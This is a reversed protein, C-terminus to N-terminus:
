FTYGLTISWNQSDNDTGFDLSTDLDLVWNEAFGVAIYFSILGYSQSGSAVLNNRNDNRDPQNLRPPERRDTDSSQTASDFVENWSAYTGYSLEYNENLTKFGTLNLSISGITANGPTRSHIVPRDPEDPTDTQRQEWDSYHLGFSSTFQWNETSLWYYSFGLSHSDSDSTLLSNPGPGGDLTIQKDDYATYQYYASWDEQYYSAGVGWLDADYDLRIPADPRRSDQLQGVDLNISWHESLDYSLMLSAGEPSLQYSNEAVGVIQESQNYGLYISSAYSLNPLTTIALFLLTKSRISM